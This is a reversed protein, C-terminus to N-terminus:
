KFNIVNLSKLRRITNEIDYMQQIVICNIELNGIEGRKQNEVSM